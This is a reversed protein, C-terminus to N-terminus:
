AAIQRMLGVTDTLGRHEAIRGDADLRVMDIGAVEVRSGSPPLGFLTGTHVGRITTAVCARDDEVVIEDVRVDLESLGEDIGEFFAKVGDIGPPLGPPV